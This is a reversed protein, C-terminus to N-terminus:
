KNFKSPELVEKYMKYVLGKESVHKAFIIEWKATQRKM